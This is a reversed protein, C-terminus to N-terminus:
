IMAAFPWLDLIAFRSFFVANRRSSCRSLMGRDVPAQARIGDNQQQSQALTKIERKSVGVGQPVDNRIEAVFIRRAQEVDLRGPKGAIQSASKQLFGRCDM